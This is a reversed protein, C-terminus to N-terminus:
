SKLLKTIASKLLKTTLSRPLFYRAIFSLLKYRWDIITFPIEREIQHLILSAAKEVSFTFIDQKPLAHKAAKDRFSTAIKGPCVCLIRIHHPKMEADFSRSFHNVFAKSASYTAFSPYTFFAAASSINLITGKRNQKKLAHAAELTIEMLAKSNVELMNLQEEIPHSLAEGYLGFGANNIVLDPCRERIKTILYTRSHPDALNVVHIEAHSGLLAAAAELEKHNRGVLILPISLAALRKCIELGLGSNAGTVLALQYDKLDMESQM